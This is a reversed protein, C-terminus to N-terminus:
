HFIKERYFKNAPIVQALLENLRNLQYSQRDVEILSRIQQRRAATTRKHQFETM